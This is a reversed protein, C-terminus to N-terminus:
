TRSRPFSTEHRGTAFEDLLPARFGEDWRLSTADFTLRYVYPYRMAAAREMHFRPELRNLLLSLANGHSSIALVSATTRECIAAVAAHVRDQTAQASECGPLAYTFDEWSRQYKEAEVDRIQTYLHVTTGSHGTYAAFPACASGTEGSGDKGCGTALTLLMASVLVPVIRGVSGNIM